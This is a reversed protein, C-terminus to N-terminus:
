IRWMTDKATTSAGFSCRFMSRNNSRLRLEWIKIHRQTPDPTFVKRKRTKQSTTQSTPNPTPPPTIPQSELIRMRENAAELQKQLDENQVKADDIEKKLDSIGDKPSQIIFSHQKIVENNISNLDQLDTIRRKNQSLEIMQAANAQQQRIITDDKQQVIKDM